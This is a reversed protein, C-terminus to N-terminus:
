KFKIMLATKGNKTIVADFEYKGKKEHKIGKQVFKEMRLDIQESADGDLFSFVDVEDLNESVEYERTPESMVYVEKGLVKEVKGLGPEQQPSIWAFCFIVLSTAIFLHKM